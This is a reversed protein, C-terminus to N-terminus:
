SYLWDALQRDTHTSLLLPHVVFFFVPGYQVANDFHVPEGTRLYQRLATGEEDFKGLNPKQLPYVVGSQLFHAGSYLLAATTLAWVVARIRSAQVM